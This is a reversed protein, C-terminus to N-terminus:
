DLRSIIVAVSFPMTSLNRRLPTCISSTIPPATTVCEFSQFMARSATIPEPRAGVVGPMVMIWAHPVLKCAAILM